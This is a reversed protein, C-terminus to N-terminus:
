FVDGDFACVFPFGGKVGVDVCMWVDCCEFIALHFKIFRTFRLAERPMWNSANLRYLDISKPTHEVARPLSERSAKAGLPFLLYRPPTKYGEYTAKTSNDVNSSRQPWSESSSQLRQITRSAKSRIHPNQRTRFKIKLLHNFKKHINPTHKQIFTFKPIQIPSIRNFKM